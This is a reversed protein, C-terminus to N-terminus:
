FDLFIETTVDNLDAYKLNVEHFTLREIFNKFPIYKVLEEIFFNVRSIFYKYLM